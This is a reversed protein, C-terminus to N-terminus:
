AARAPRSLLPRLAPLLLVIGLVAVGNWGLRDQAVGAFFSALTVIVFTATENLSQLRGRNAASAAEVLLASGGIYAFNWGLGVGTLAAHFLAASQGALAVACSAIAIGCGALAM